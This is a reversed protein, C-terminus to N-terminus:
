LLLKQAETEEASVLSFTSCVEYPKQSGPNPSFELSNAVTEAVTTISIKNIQKNEPSGSISDWLQLLALDKVWQAM